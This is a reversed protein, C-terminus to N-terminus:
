CDNVGPFIRGISYFVLNRGSAALRERFMLARQKGEEGTDRLDLPSCDRKTPQRVIDDKVAKVASDLGLSLTGREIRGSRARALQHQRAADCLGADREVIDSDDDVAAEGATGAVIAAGAEGAEDGLAGAARGDGLACATGRALRGADRDSKPLLSGVGRKGRVVRGFNEFGVERAQEESAKQPALRFWGAEGKEIRRRGDGDVFRSVPQRAQAGEVYFAAEGRVTALDSTPWKLRTEGVHHDSGAFDAYGAGRGIGGSQEGLAPEAAVIRVEFKAMAAPLTLAALAGIGGASHGVAPGLACAPLRAGFRVIEGAGDGESEGVANRAAAVRGAFLPL